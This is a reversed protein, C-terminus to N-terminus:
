VTLVVYWVSELLIVVVCVYCCVQPAFLKDAMDYHDFQLAAVSLSRPTNLESSLSFCTLRTLLVLGRAWQEFTRTVRALCVDWEARVETNSCALQYCYMSQCDTHSSCPCNGPRSSGTCPGAESASKTQFITQGFSVIKGVGGDDLHVASTAFISPPNTLTRHYWPRRSPVICAM